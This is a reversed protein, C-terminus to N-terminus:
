GNSKKGRKKTTSTSNGLGLAGQYERELAKMRALKMFEQIAEDENVRKRFRYALESLIDEESLDPIISASKGYIRIM